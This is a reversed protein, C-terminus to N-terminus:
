ALVISCWCFLWRSGVYREKQPREKQPREKKALKTKEKWKHRKRGEKRGEKRGKGPTSENIFFFTRYIIIYIYIHTHTHTNWSQRLWDHTAFNADETWPGFGNAMSPWTFASGLLPGLEWDIMPWLHRKPPSLFHWPGGGMHQMKQFGVGVMLIVTRQTGFAKPRGSSRDASVKQPPCHHM